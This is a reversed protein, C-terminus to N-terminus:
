VKQCKEIKNIIPTWLTKEYQLQILYNIIALGIKFSLWIDYTTILQDYYICIKIIILSIVCPIHGLTVDRM